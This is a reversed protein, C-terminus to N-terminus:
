KDEITSKKKTTEKTENFEQTYNVYIYAKVNVFYDTYYLIYETVWIM